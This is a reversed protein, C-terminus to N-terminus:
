SCIVWPVSMNPLLRDQDELEFRDAIAVLEDGTLHALSM